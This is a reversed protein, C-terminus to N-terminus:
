CIICPDGREDGGGESECALMIEFGLVDEESYVDPGLVTGM